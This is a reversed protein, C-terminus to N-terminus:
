IAAAWKEFSKVPLSRKQRDLVYADYANMINTKAAMKAEKEGLRLEIQALVAAEDSGLEKSKYRDVANLGNRRDDMSEIVQGMEPNWFYSVIYDDGVWFRQKSANRKIKAFWDPVPVAAAKKVAKAKRETEYQENLMRQHEITKVFDSWTMNERQLFEYVWKQIYKLVEKESWIHTFDGGAWVTTGDEHRYEYRIDYDYEYRNNNRMGDGEVLSPISVEKTRGTPSFSEGWYKRPLNNVVSGVAEEISSAAIIAAKYGPCAYKDWDSLCAFNKEVEELLSNKSEDEWSILQTLRDADTDISGYISIEIEEWNIDEPNQFITLIGNVLKGNLRSALQEQIDIHLENCKIKYSMTKEELKAEADLLQIIYRRCGAKVLIQYKAIQAQIKATM